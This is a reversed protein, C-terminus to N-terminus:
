ADTFMVKADVTMACVGGPGAMACAFGYDDKFLDTITGSNGDFNIVKRPYITWVFKIPPGYAFNSNAADYATPTLQHTYDRLISYRPLQAVNRNALINDQDFIGYVAPVAGVAEKNHYLICRCLAGAPSSVANLTIMVTFRISTVTIRNGIRTSATTGQTIGTLGSFFDWTGDPNAGVQLSTLKSKKELMNNMIRKVVPKTVRALRAKKTKRRYVKKAM